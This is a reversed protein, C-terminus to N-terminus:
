GLLVDLLNTEWLKRRIERVNPERTVFTHASNNRINKLEFYEDRLSYLPGNKIDNLVHTAGGFTKHGNNYQMSEIAATKYADSHELYDWLCIEVARCYELMVPAYDIQSEEYFTKYFAEASILYSLADGSLKPFRSCVKAKAESIYDQHQNKLSSELLTLAKDMKKDFEKNWRDDSIIDGIDPIQISNIKELCRSLTLSRFHYVTIEKLIGPFKNGDNIFSVMRDLYDEFAREDSIDSVRALKHLKIWTEEMTLVSFADRFYRYCDDTISCNNVSIRIDAEQYQLALSEFITNEILEKLDSSTYM